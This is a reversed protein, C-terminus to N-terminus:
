AVSRSQAAQAVRKSALPRPSGGESGRRGGEYYLLAVLRPRM